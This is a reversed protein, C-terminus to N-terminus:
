QLLTGRRRRRDRDSHGHHSATSRYPRRGGRVPERHVARAGDPGVPPSGPGPGPPQNSDRRSRGSSRPIHLDRNGSRPRCRRATGDGARFGGRSRLLGARRAGTRHDHGGRQTAVFRAMAGCLVRDCKGGARCGPNRRRHAGAVAPSKRAAPGAVSLLPLLLGAVVGVAMILPRLLPDRVCLLVGDWAQRTLSVGGPTVASPPATSLQRRSATLVVLIVAYTAADFWSLNALGVTVVAIGGLPAAVISSLQGVMGRAAMARGLQHDAVLLRPVVSSAPIYFANATGVCVAISVLLWPPTGFSVILAGATVSAVVMVADAIVMVPWPGHRDSAAGGLLVLLLGPVLRVTNVIGAPTGSTATATWGLAFGFTSSGLLSVGIGTLWWGYRGNM